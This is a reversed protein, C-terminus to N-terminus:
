KIKVLEVEFVLWSNGPIVGPIGNAGYATEPPLIMTRKEKLKMDQAMIDFGPIMQGIGTTFALPGRGKSSDFVRGDMFSGTYHTEVQRNKGAKSGSGEKQIVYFIGNADKKAGPFKAEIEKFIKEGAEKKLRDFDEQTASFAEADKGLRIITLKKIVDGQLTKNVVDQGEIVKGFVTHKGDLWPTPVHTIFFQSGNTGPGANAMSLVGPASHKLSPVIEDPFTYGPGGRGTGQPDGGQVMFDQDDGNAKSIVRHFKLGDYFPKGKAAKLKGEALGVFNTVTLPTQKYHLELVINGRSTEMLAFVGEKGELSKISKTMQAYGGCILAAFVLVAATYKKNM